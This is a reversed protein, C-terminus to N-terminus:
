NKRNSSSKSNENKSHDGTTSPPKRKTTRKKYKYGNYPSDMNIDDRYRKINSNSYGIQKSIEKQTLKPENSELKMFKLMMNQKYFRLISNSNLIESKAAMDTTFNNMWIFIFGSRKWNM